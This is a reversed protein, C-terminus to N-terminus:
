SFRLSISSLHILPHSCMRSKQFVLTWNEAVINPLECSGLVEAKSPGMVKTKWPYDFGCLQMHILMFYFMKLLTQHTQKITKRLIEWTLATNLYNGVRRRSERHALVFLFPSMKALPLVNTRWQVSPSITRFNYPNWIMSICPFLYLILYIEMTFFAPKTLAKEGSSVIVGQKMQTAKQLLRSSRGLRSCEGTTLRSKSDGHWSDMGIIFPKGAGLLFHKKGWLYKWFHWNISRAKYLAEPSVSCWSWLWVPM